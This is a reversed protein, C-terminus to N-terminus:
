RPLSHSIAAEPPGSRDQTAQDGPSAREASQTKHRLQPQGRAKRDRPKRDPAQLLGAPAPTTPVASNAARQERDEPRTSDCRERRRARQGLARRGIVVAAAHHGSADACIQRVAGLWHQAGWVSTYAPDVAVVALGINSAMQVLRDRFRATPIGAVMRRFARGRRGRSPRRGSRERGEDRAQRFDLDEIVVAACRSARALSLLQSVAARLRGDRTTTTCGTLHLPITHPQGVPNGSPDLVWGALHGANLDVALVWGVRLEALAPLSRPQTKWSADLYWRRKAPEYSIDYRVAGSEAQGAVDDGRYGFRVNEIRYRGRPSNALHALPVPLKLELWQGDPHWRITENGLYKDAEGDATVFLRASEWRQQWAREDLGAAALDHRARALRRGGRCVAVRGAALRGDVDALRAQLMQLRRQMHWREAQDGYGRISGAREGAAVALRRRIRGTQARLSRAHAALNREALGWADESSRTIAGAWRSSCSSTLAQKRQRRSM